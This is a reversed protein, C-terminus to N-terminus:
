TKATSCFRYEELKCCTCPNLERLVDFYDDDLESTFLLWNNIFLYLISIYFIHLMYVKPINESCHGVCVHASLSAYYWAHMNSFFSLYFQLNSYCIIIIATKTRICSNSLDYSM